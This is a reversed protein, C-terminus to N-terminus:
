GDDDSVTAHLSSLALALGNVIMVHVEFHVQWVLGSWGVM